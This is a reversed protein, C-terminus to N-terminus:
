KSVIIKIKNSSKEDLKAVSTRTLKEFPNTVMHVCLVYEGSIKPTTISLLKKALKGKSVFFYCFNKNGNFSYQKNNLSIWFIYKSIDKYGGATLPLEIKEGPKTIITSNNYDIKDETVEGNLVVGFYDERVLTNNVIEPTLSVNNNETKGVILNRRITYEDSDLYTNGKEPSISVNFIMYHLGDNINNVSFRMPLICTEGSNISVEYKNIDKIKNQVSFLIQKYDVFVTITLKKRDKFDSIIKLDNNFNSDSKVRLDYQNKLNKNNKTFVFGVSNSYNNEKNINIDPKTINKLLKCYSVMGLSTGIIICTVVFLFNKMLNNIKM